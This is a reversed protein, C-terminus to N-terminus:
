LDTLEFKIVDGAIILNSLERYLDPLANRESPLEVQLMFHLGRILKPQRLLKLKYKGISIKQQSPIGEIIDAPHNKFVIHAM